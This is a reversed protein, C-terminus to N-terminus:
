PVIRFAHNKRYNFNRMRTTSTFRECRDALHSELSKQNPVAFTVHKLLFRRRCSNSAIHFFIIIIIIITNMIIIIAITTVIIIIINPFRRAIAPFSSELLRCGEVKLDPSCVSM